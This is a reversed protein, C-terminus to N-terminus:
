LEWSRDLHDECRGLQDHYRARTFIKATILLSMAFDTEDFDHIHGLLVGHCM